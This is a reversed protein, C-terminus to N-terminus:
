PPALVQTRGTSAADDRRGTSGASGNRQELQRLEPGLSPVPKRRTSGSRKVGSSEAEKSSQKRRQGPQSSVRARGETSQPPAADTSIAAGITSARNAWPLESPEFDNLQTPGMSIRPIQPPAATIRAPPTPFPEPELEPEPEIFPDSVRKSSPAAAVEYDNMSFDSEGRTIPHPALTTLPMPISKEGRGPSSPQSGHGDSSGFQNYGNPGEYGGYAKEYEIVSERKRRQRRRILFFALLGAAALAVVAIIIGAIAGGSIGTTTNSTNDAGSSTSAAASSKSSTVSTTSTTSTITASTASAMSASASAYGFAVLCSTDTGQVVTFTGSKANTGQADNILGSVIYRGAPVTVPNWTFGVSAPWASTVTQNVVYPPSVTTAGTQDVGSNTVVLTIDYLPANLNPTM